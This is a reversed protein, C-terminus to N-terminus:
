DGMAPVTVRSGEGVILASSMAGSVTLLFTHHPYDIFLIQSTGIITDLAIKMKGGALAL